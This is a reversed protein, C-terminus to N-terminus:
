PHSLMCAKQYKFYNFFLSLENIYDIGIINLIINMIFWWYESHNPYWDSLMINTNKIAAWQPQITTHIHLTNMINLNLIRITLKQICTKNKQKEKNWGESFNTTKPKYSVEANQVMQMKAEKLLTHITMVKANGCYKHSLLYDAQFWHKWQMVTQKKYSPTVLQRTVRNYERLKKETAGACFLPNRWERAQKNNTSSGISFTLTLYKAFYKPPELSM